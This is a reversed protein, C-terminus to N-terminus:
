HYLYYEITNVHRLLHGIWDVSLLSNLDQFPAIMYHQVCNICRKGYLRLGGDFEIRDFLM